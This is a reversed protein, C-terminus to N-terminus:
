CGRVVRTVMKLFDRLHLIMGVYVGIRIMQIVEMVFGLNVKLSLLFVKVRLVVM